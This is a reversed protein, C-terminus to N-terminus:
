PHSLTVLEKWDILSCRLAKTVKDVIGKAPYRIHIVGRSVGLQVNVGEIPLKDTFVSTRSVTYRDWEELIDVLVGLYALPDEDLKLRRDKEPCGPWDKMQQVNHVATAATCWVDGAWWWNADYKWSSHAALRQRFQNWVKLDHIDSPASTPLGFYLKYYFTSHCLLLLGSCIAHDLVRVETGPLHKEILYRNVKQLDRMRHAMEPQDFAEYNQAWLEFADASLGGATKIHDSVPLRLGERRALISERLRDMKGLDRLSDSIASLTGTKIKPIGCHALRRLQKRLDVDPIEIAGWFTHEFFEKVYKAGYQAMANSVRLDNVSIGGEFLYGIDHLLSTYQWLHGFDKYVDSKAYSKKPLRFRQKFHKHLAVRLAGCHALFYWGLLYNNLTHAAHDRQREYEIDNSLERKLVGHRFHVSEEFDTVTLVHKAYTEAYYLRTEDMTAKLCRRLDDYTSELIARHFLAYECHPNHRGSREKYAPNALDLLAEPATKLKM